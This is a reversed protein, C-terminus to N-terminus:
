ILHDSITCIRNFLSVWLLKRVNVIESFIWKLSQVIYECLYILFDTSYSIHCIRTIQYKKKKKELLLRCVLNCPSQLESTHEESRASIALRTDLLALGRQAM